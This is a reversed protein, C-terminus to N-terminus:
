MPQENEQVTFTPFVHMPLACNKVKGRKTATFHTLVIKTLWIVLKIKFFITFYLVLIETITFLKFFLLIYFQIEKVM